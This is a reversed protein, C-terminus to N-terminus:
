KGGKKMEFEEWYLEMSFEEFGVVLGPHIWSCPTYFSLSFLIIQSQFLRPNKLQETQVAFNEKRHSLRSRGNKSDFIFWWPKRGPLFHFQLASLSAFKDIPQTFPTVLKVFFTPHPNNTKFGFCSGARIDKRSRLPTVPFSYREEPCLQWCLTM